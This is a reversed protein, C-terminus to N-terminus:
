NKLRFNRPLYQKNSNICKVSLCQFYSLDVLCANHRSQRYASRFCKDNPTYAIKYGHYNMMRMRKSSWLHTSLWKMKGFRMQYAMILHRRKRIHKRCKPLKQMNESKILEDEMKRRMKHPIRFRNHSMARRRISKPFSQHGKKKTDM